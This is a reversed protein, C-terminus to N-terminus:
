LGDTCKRRTSGQSSRHRTGQNVFYQGITQFKQSHNRRPSFQCPPIQDLNRTQTSSHDIGRSPLNLRKQADAPKNCWCNPRQFSHWLSKCRRRNSFHQRNGLQDSQLQCRRVIDGKSRQQVGGTLFSYQFVCVYMCVDNNMETSRFLTM